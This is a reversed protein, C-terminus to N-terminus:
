AVLGDGSLIRGGGPSFAVSSVEGRHGEFTKVLTGTTADWLKMAGISHGSLVHNGDPSFAVSHVWSAWKSHEEFTRVLTGTAADWLKM